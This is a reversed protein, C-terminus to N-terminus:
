SDQGPISGLVKPNLPSREVLQDVQSSSKPALFKHVHVLLVKKCFISREKLAFQVLEKLNYMLDLDKKDCCTSSADYADTNQM